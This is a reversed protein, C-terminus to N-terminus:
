EDEAVGVTAGGGDVSALEVDTADDTGHGAADPWPEIGLLWLFVKELWELKCLKFSSTPDEAGEM